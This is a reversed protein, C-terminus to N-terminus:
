KGDNDGTQKAKAIKVKNLIEIAKDIFEPERTETTVYFLDFLSERKLIPKENNEPDEWTSFEIYIDRGMNEDAVYFDGDGIAQRVATLIEGAAWEKLHDPTPIDDPNWFTETLPKTM